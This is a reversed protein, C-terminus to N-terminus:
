ERGPAAVDSLYKILKTSPTSTTVELVGWDSVQPCSKELAEILLPCREQVLPSDLADRQRVMAGFYISDGEERITALESIRNIDVIHEPALYRFNMMAMLSQGGALIKADELSALMAVADAVSEPRHYSFPAPKM